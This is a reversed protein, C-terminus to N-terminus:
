LRRVVTSRTWRDSALLAWYMGSIHFIDLNLWSISYFSLTGGLSSLRPVDQFWINVMDKWAFYSALKKMENGCCMKMIIPLRHAASSCMRIPRPLRESPSTWVDIQRPKSTLHLVVQCGAIERQEPSIFRSSGRHVKFKSRWWWGCRSTTFIRLTQGAGQAHAATRVRCDGTARPPSPISCNSVLVQDIIAHHFMTLGQPHHPDAHDLRALLHWPITLLLNASFM